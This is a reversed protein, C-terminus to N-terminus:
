QQIVLSDFEVGTADVAHLTLQAGEIEGYVFHIVDASYGTFSSKGVPRTGKGGGGTVVYTVGNQPTTREYNHDHGALVLQVGRNQVIPALKARLGTDSGHAGSSFPPRHLYVIKWPRDSSALDDDLWAMQTDYDAETDLAAFHVPGWDFSYWSEGTVGPLRFVSRFPAANPSNGYEHNGAAPFFPISRFLGAYVGFVNAEFERLTGNDYAIDGTHVMLDFPFDTMQDLLAHQAEGGGGSDGFALFRVPATSDRSPATRFGARATMQMGGDIGYCYITDPQLGTVTAWMQRQDGVHEAAVDVVGGADMVETGDPLSFKVHELTGSSTVWGVQASSDSVKQVYPRRKIALGATLVDGGGCAAELDETPSGRQAQHSTDGPPAALNGGSDAMGGNCAAVSLM